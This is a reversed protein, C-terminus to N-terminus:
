VIAKVVAIGATLALLSLVVSAAGYFFAMSWAGRQLLLYLDLSFASFTTFGGLIGVGFLLRMNEPDFSPTGVVRISPMLLVAFLVGMFFSGVSNVLFTALPFNKLSGFSVIYPACLIGVGYRSVGGIGAGIFVLFLKLM